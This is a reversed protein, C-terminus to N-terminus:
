ARNPATSKRVLLSPRVVSDTGMRPEIRVGEYREYLAHFANQAIQVRPLHVTSLAPQTFASLQIDDFGIVSIDDPVKLGHLHIAGMAGIATLDNSALIATPRNKAAALITNMATQGGDIRHNGEALWRKRPGLGYGAMGTVFADYRSRASALRLPGSIFGINRHGLDVLHKVACDVGLKYDVRVTSVGLSPTGIDLIVLPIGRKSFSAILREDMESTMIAVGDVKRQMMRSVCHEMRHPDYDTNAVLVEQGHEVAITEFAKVLEPFFPNTIDSIILGFMSSRGTGLAQANRNPHFNLERIANLVAAATQPRVKDPNNITRSVTATSVKAHRAVAEITM